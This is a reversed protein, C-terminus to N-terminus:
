LIMKPHTENKKTKTEKTQSSHGRWATDFHLEFEPKVTAMDLNCKM